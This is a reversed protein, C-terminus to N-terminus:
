FSIFFTILCELGQVYIRIHILFPCHPEPAFANYIIIPILAEPNQTGFSVLHGAMKAPLANLDL